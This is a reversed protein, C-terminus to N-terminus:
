SNESDNGEKFEIYNISSKPIIYNSIRINSQGDNMQQLYIDEFFGYDDKITITENILHIIMIKVIM